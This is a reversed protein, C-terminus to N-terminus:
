YRIIRGVRDDQEKQQKKEEVIEEQKQYNFQVNSLAKTKNRAAIWQRKKEEYERELAAIAAKQQDLVKGLNNIFTHYDKMQKASVGMSSTQQFQQDYEVRYNELDLLRQKQLSVEQASKALRKAAEDELRQKYDCIPKLRRSQKM